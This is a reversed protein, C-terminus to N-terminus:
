FSERFIFIKQFKPVWLTLLVSTLYKFKVMKGKDEDRENGHELLLRLAGITGLLGKHGRVM